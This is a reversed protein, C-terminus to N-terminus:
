SFPIHRRSWFPAQPWRQEQGYWFSLHRRYAAGISTLEDNYGVHATADGDLARDAAEAAALGTYLANFIGQSSLPDFSIAADGVAFWGPGAGADLAASHAATVKAQTEAAFGSEAMLAGMGPLRRASALLSAADRLGGAPALDADTHFALM